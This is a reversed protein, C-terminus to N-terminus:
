RAPRPPGCVTAARDAKVARKGKVLDDFADGVVVLVGPVDSTRRVVDVNRGFQSSVLRVAPNRPEESWIQVRKVRRRGPANAEEGEAFGAAVLLDMTRGALGVREGANYVSVTVDRRKVTDGRAVDRQVCVPPGSRDPFPESLASWGWVAALALVLALVGLTAFSRVRADM